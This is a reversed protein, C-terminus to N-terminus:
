KQSFFTSLYKLTYFHDISPISNHNIKIYLYIVYILLCIIVLSGIVGVLKSIYFGIIACIIDGIINIFGDGAKEAKKAIGIKVWLQTGGFSSNEWVEFFLALLIVDYINNLFIGTTVGFLLHYLSYMDFLHKSVHLDNYLQIQEDFTKCKDCFFSDVYFLRFDDNKM